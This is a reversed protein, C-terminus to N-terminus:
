ALLTVERKYEELNHCELNKQAPKDRKDFKHKLCSSPLLFNMQFMVYFIARNWDSFIVPPFFSSMEDHKDSRLSFQNIVPNNFYM